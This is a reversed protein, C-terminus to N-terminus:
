SGRLAQFQIYRVNKLIWEIGFTTKLVVDGICAVDLVNIDALCVKGLLPKFNKMVEMCPTVHFSDGSDGYGLIWLIGRHLM